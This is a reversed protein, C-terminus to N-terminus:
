NDQLHNVVSHLYVKLVQNSQESQSNTKPHFATSYQGRISLRKYLRKIFASIFQPGHNSIVSKPMGFRYYINYHLIKATGETTINNCPIFLKYKSLQNTITLINTYKIGGLQSAPLDIIFDISIDEFTSNPVTLQQLPSSYAEWFAKIRKCINCNAM